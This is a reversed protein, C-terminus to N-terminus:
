FLYTAWNPGIPYLCNTSSKQFTNGERLLFYLFSPRKEEPHPQADILLEFSSGSGSYNFSAGPSVVVLVILPFYIWAVPDLDSSAWSAGLHGTLHVLLDGDQKFWNSNLKRHSTGSVSVAQRRLFKIETFDSDGWSGQTQTQKQTSVCLQPQFALTPIRTRLWWSDVQADVSADM